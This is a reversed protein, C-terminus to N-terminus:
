RLVGSAHGEALDLDVDDPGVGMKRALERKLTLVFSKYLGHHQRLTELDLNEIDISTQVVRGGGAAVGPELDMAKRPEAASPVAPPASPLAPGGAVMEYDDWYPNAEEVCPGKWLACGGSVNRGLRWDPSSGHQYGFGVCGEARACRRGCEDADTVTTVEGFMASAWNSCGSGIGRLQWRETAGEGVM